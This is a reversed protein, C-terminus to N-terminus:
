VPLPAERIWKTPAYVPLMLDAPQTDPPDGSLETSRPTSAPRLSGREAHVRHFGAALEGLMRAFQQLIRYRQRVRDIVDRGEIQAWVLNVYDDLSRQIDQRRCNVAEAQKRWGESLLTHAKLDNLWRNEDRM